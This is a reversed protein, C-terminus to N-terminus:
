IGLRVKKKLRQVSKVELHIWIAHSEKWLFAGSHKCSYHESKLLENDSHVNLLSRSFVSVKSFYIPFFIKDNLCMVRPHVLVWTRSSSYSASFCSTWASSGNILGWTKGWSAWTRCACGFFREVLHVLM